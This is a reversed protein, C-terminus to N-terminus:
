KKPMPLLTYNVGFRHEVIWEVGDSDTVIRPESFTDGRKENSDCSTFFVVLVIYIAYSLKKTSNKM